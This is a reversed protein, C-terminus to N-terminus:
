GDLRQEEGPELVVLVMTTLFPRASQGHVSTRNYPGEKELGLHLSPSLYAPFSQFPQLRLKWTPKDRTLGLPNGVTRAPIPNIKQLTFRRGPM